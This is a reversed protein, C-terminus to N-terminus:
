VVSQITRSRICVRQRKSAMHVHVAVACIPCNTRSRSVRLSLRSSQRVDLNVSWRRGAAVVAAQHTFCGDLLRTLDVISPSYLPTCGVRPVRDVAYCLFKGEHRCRVTKQLSRAIRPSGSTKVGMTLRKAARGVTGAVMRSTWCHTRGACGAGDDQSLIDISGGSM